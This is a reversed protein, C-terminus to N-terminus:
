GREEYVNVYEDDILEIFIPNYYNDTEIGHIYDPYEEGQPFWINNHVRMFDEIYYRRNNWWFSEHFDKNSDHEDEIQEIPIMEVNLRDFKYM